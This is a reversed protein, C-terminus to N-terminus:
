LATGPKDSLDPEVTSANSAPDGSPDSQSVIGPKNSPNPQGAIGLTGTPKGALDPPGLMSSKRALSNGAIDGSFSGVHKQKRQCEGKKQAAKHSAAAAARKKHDACTGYETPVRDKNKNVHVKWWFTDSSGYEEQCDGSFKLLHLLESQSLNHPDKFELSKLLYRSNIFETCNLQVANYPASKYHFGSAI